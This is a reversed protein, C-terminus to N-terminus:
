RARNRRRHALRLGATASRPRPKPALQPPQAAPQNRPRPGLNVEGLYRMNPSTWWARRRMEANIFLGDPSRYVEGQEVYVWAGDLQRHLYERASSEEEPSVDVNKLMVTSQRGNAEVVITRSDVISLVHSMPIAAYAANTILLCVLYLM